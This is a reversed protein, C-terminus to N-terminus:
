IYEKRTMMKTCNLRAKLQGYIEPNGERLIKTQRRHDELGKPLLAMLHCPCLEYRAM